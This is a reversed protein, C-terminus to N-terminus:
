LKSTMTHAFKLKFKKICITINGELFLYHHNNEIYSVPYQIYKLTLYTTNVTLIVMWMSVIRKYSSNGLLLKYSTTVCHVYMCTQNFM